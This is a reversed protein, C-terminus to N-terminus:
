FSETIRGIAEDKVEFMGMHAAERMISVTIRPNLRGQEMLSDAPIGKDSEGGLILISKPFDALVRSNDVRDRMARTYGKVADAQAKVSINKVFPIAPHSPDAFLPEIFNSTFALVGNEDIFKLVKTRSEKKEVSDAYATSHFLVLGDFKGPELRIMELAVYGGLSHGVLVPEKIQEAEIWDNMVAAVDALSFDGTLIESSGFGPLDPTFVTFQNTLGPEFQEWVQRNMPFGHILILAPGSGSKKYHIAM